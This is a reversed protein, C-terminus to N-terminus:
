AILCLINRGHRYAGAFDKHRYDFFYRFNFLIPLIGGLSGEGSNSKALLFAQEGNM